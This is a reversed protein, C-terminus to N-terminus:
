HSFHEDCTGVSHAMKELREGLLGLEDLIARNDLWVAQKKAIVVVETNQPLRMLSRRFAEKVLRRIRNRKAACGVRKTTTVGIRTKPAGFVALGLFAKTHVKQGTTQVRLYESRKRLRMQKSFREGDRVNM